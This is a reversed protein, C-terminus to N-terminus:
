PELIFGLRVLSPRALTRHSRPLGCDAGSRFRILLPLYELSINFAVTQGERFARTGNNDIL